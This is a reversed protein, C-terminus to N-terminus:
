QRDKLWRPLKDFGLYEIDGVTEFKTMGPYHMRYVVDANGKEHNAWSLNLLKSLDRVDSIDPGEIEILPPIWPWEDLMVECGNCEWAERRTEQESWKKLGIAEFTKVASDYSSAEYEIEDTRRSDNKAVQKYTILIRNGEDRIRIWSWVDKRDRLRKDPYDMVARKMLQSPQKCVGGLETLQRRIDSFEVDLFKVEIEQNM